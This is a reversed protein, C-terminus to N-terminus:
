LDDGKLIERAEVGLAAALRGATRTNVKAGGRLIKSLTTETIPASIAAERITLAKDLMIARIKDADLEFM